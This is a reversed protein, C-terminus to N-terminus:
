LSNLAARTGPGVFGVPSLGQDKQFAAVAARTVAGFLGTDTPHNFFGLERLKAQLMRVEEGRSGMRLNSVFEGLTPQPAPPAPAPAPAASEGASVASEANLADRTAPGVVGPASKFGQAKQFAVVAAKTVSGFLGTNTPHKFFGLERLTQQLQKVEAGKSGIGLTHVFVAVPSATSPLSVSASTAPVAPSESPVAPIAPTVSAGSGGGGGISGTGGCANTTASLASSSATVVGDGNRGAVNFTRSTGCNVSGVTYSTGTIWTSNTGGVSDEAWFEEGSDGSWTLTFGNAAATLVVSSPVNALTYLSASSSYSTTQTHDGSVAAVAIIHPTNATLGTSISSSVGGIFSFPLSTTTSGWTLDSQLYTATAGGTDRVIYLTSTPNTSSNVKVTITTLAAASVTTTPTNPITSVVVTSSYTTTQMSDGNIAAVSIIHPSSTALGITTTGSAGGLQAYNFTATANGWTQDVQLYQVTAPATDKIIFTTSATTPNSGANIVITLQQPNASTVTPASPTAAYTYVGTAIAGYTTTVNNGNVAAVSILHLTNTALGITTTGALGGLQNYTFTATTTDWTQNIQLYKTTASGTDRVVFTTDSPNTSSNIIIHMTQNATSTVTSVGPTDATTYVSAAASRTSTQMTDGNIAAVDITHLTNTALGITTTGAAGGLQDFM